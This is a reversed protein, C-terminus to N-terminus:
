YNVSELIEASINEKQESVDFVNLEAGYKKTYYLINALPFKEVGGNLFVNIKSQLVNSEPFVVRSSFLVSNKYENQLAVLVDVPDSFINVVSNFWGMYNFVTPNKPYLVQTDNIVVRDKKGVSKAVLNVSEGEFTTMPLLLKGFKWDTDREVWYSYPYFGIGYDKLLDETLGFAELEMQCFKNDLHQEAECMIDRISRKDWEFLGKTHKTEEPAKLQVFTQCSSCFGIRHFKDVVYSDNAKCSPCVGKPTNEVDLGSLRFFSLNDFLQEEPIKRLDM